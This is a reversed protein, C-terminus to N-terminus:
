LFFPFFDKRGGYKNLLFFLVYSVLVSHVYIHLNWPNEIEIKM